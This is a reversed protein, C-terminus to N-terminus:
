NKKSLLNSCFNVQSTELFRPSINLSVQALLHPKKVYLCSRVKEQLLKSSQRPKGAQDQRATEIQTWPFVANFTDTNELTFNPSMFVQFDFKIHM